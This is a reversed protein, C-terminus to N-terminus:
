KVGRARQFTLLYVVLKNRAPLGLGVMKDSPLDNVFVSSAGLTGWPPYHNPELPFNASYEPLPKDETVLIVKGDPWEITITQGILRAGNEDLVNVFFHHKGQREKEDWFEARALRWFLQGRPVSAPIWKIDLADLRADWIPTPLPATTPTATATARPRTSPRTLTPTAPLRTSSPTAPPTFTTTYSPMLPPSPTNAATPTPALTPTATPTHCAVALFLIITTVGLPQHSM